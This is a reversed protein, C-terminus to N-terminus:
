GEEREEYKALPGWRLWENLMEIQKEDCYANTFLILVARFLRLDNTDPKKGFMKQYKDEVFELPMRFWEKSALAILEHKITPPFDFPTAVLTDKEKKMDDLSPSILGIEELIRDQSNVRWLECLYKEDIKMQKIFQEIPIVLERNSLIFYKIINSHEPVGEWVELIGMPVIESAKQEHTENYIFRAIADAPIRWKRGVRRAFIKGERIYQRVTIPSLKLAKAVDEVNYHVQWENKPDTDTEWDELSEQIEQPLSNFWDEYKM